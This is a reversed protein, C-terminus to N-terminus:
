SNLKSYEDKKSALSRKKGSLSKSADGRSDSINKIAKEIKDINDTYNAFKEEDESMLLVGMTRNIRDARNGEFFYVGNKTKKDKAHQRELEEKKRALQYKKEKLIRKDEDFLDIDDLLNNIAKELAHIESLLSMNNKYYRRNNDGKKSIEM